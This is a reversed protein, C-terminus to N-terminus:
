KGLKQMMLMTDYKNWVSYLGNMAKSFQWTYYIGEKETDTLVHDLHVDKSTNLFRIAFTNNNSFEEDDIDYIELGDEVWESVTGGDVNDEIDRSDYEREFIVNGNMSIAITDFFVWEDSVYGIKFYGYKGSKNVPVICVDESLEELGPYSTIVSGDFADTQVDFVKMATVARALAELASKASDNESLENNSIYDNLASHISDLKLDLIDSKFQDRRAEDALFDAELSPDSEHSRRLQEDRIASQLAQLEDDSMERLDYEAYGVAVFMMALALLIVALKKM